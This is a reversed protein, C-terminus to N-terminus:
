ATQALCDEIIADFLDRMNIGAAAAMKPVISNESMGPITNIELFYFDNNRLIYDVRVLGKCMLTDYVESSIAMCKKTLEDSIRAPSIEDVLSPTYKADFDFFEKKSVIETLPLIYDKDKTKLLGCTIEDGAIFEEIIVVPNETYAKEIAPLLEKKEKVKSIGFSSGAENPKVFVPLGLKETIEDVNVALGKKVIVSKALTTSTAKLYNKTADKNFTLASSLVNSVTYPLGILDFYAQLKGDEGPTGHIAILACDFKVKQGNQVFSFDDKNIVLNCLDDGCVEWDKGKITVIYAKHKEPNLWKKIQDASQVSIVYESSDGGALIAITKKM